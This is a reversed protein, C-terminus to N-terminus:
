FFNTEVSDRGDFKFKLDFDDYFRDSPVSTDRKQFYKSNEDMKFASTFHQGQRIMPIPIDGVFVAGELNRSNYFYILTDKIEDPCAWEKELIFADLGGNAVSERYDEIENKCHRYTESDVVIAFSNLAQALTATAFAALALTM